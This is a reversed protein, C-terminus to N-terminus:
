FFIGTEWPSPDFDGWDKSTVRQYNTVYRVPFNVINKFPLDVKLPWKEITVTLKGSPIRKFSTSAEKRDDDKENFM